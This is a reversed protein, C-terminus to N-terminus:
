LYRPLFSISLKCEGINTSVKIDNVDVINAGFILYRPMNEGYIDRFEAPDSFLNTLSWEGYRYLYMDIRDAVLEGKSTKKMYM